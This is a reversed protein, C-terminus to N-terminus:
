TLAMDCLVSLQKGVLLREISNLDFKRRRPPAADALIPNLLGALGHWPRLYPPDEDAM